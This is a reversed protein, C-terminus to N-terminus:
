SARRLWAWLRAYWPRELRAIRAQLALLQSQTLNNIANVVDRKTAFDNARHTNEPHCRNTPM